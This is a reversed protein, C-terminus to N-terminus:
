INFKLLCLLLILFVIIENFHHHLHYQYFYPCYFKHHYHPHHHYHHYTSLIIITIIIVTIITIIITIIRIIIIAIIIIIILIILIIRIITNTSFGLNPSMGCWFWSVEQGAFSQPHFIFWFTLLKKEQYIELDIHFLGWFIAGILHARSRYSKKAPWSSVYFVTIAHM